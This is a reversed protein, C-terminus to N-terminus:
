GEKQIMTMDYGSEVFKVCLDHNIGNGLYTYIDTMEELTFNTGLLKNIGEFHLKREKPSVAKIATRTLWELIKAKLQTEDTVDKLSFGSDTRLSFVLENQMNVFSQPFAAQIKRSWMTDFINFKEVGAVAEPEEKALYDITNEVDALTHIHGLSSEMSLVAKLQDANLTRMKKVVEKPPLPMWGVVPSDVRNDYIDDQNFYRYEWWGKPIFYDDSEEDYTGWEFIEEWYFKSKESLVTGDEYHATTIGYGGCATEFLILVETEVKPPDKDPDRWFSFLAGEQAVPLKEVKERAVRLTASVVDNASPKQITNYELCKLVDERNIYEAM